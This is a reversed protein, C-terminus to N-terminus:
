IMGESLYDIKYLAILTAKVVGLEALDRMSTAIIDDSSDYIATVTNNHSIDCRCKMLPRNGKFELEIEYEDPIEFFVIPKLM